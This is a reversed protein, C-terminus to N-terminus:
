AFASTSLHCNLYDFPTFWASPFTLEWKGMTNRLLVRAILFFVWTNRCIPLTHKSPPSYMPHVAFVRHTAAVLSSQTVQSVGGDGGGGHSAKTHCHGATLPCMLPLCCLSYGFSLKAAAAKPRSHVTADSLTNHLLM